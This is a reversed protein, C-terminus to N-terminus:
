QGTAGEEDEEGEHGHEGEKELHEMLEKINAPIDAESFQKQEEPHHTFAIIDALEQGTFEIQEGLEERQMYIMAEAGLWMRASFEFPNMMPQMTSVDLPTADTGGIGNVSHCVVCGKAAFLRRGNAANMVPMMLGPSMMQHPMQEGQMGGMGTGSEQAALPAPLALAAGLAVAITVPVTLKGIM